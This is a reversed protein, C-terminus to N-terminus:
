EKAVEISENLKKQKSTNNAQTKMDTWRCNSPEYNGDNDVRDITCKGFPAFEDYENELAWTRFSEYSNKWEDCITIGRGGYRHFRINNPNLCRAKISKWVEYLRDEKGKCSGGHILNRQTLYESKACGCSVYRGARLNKGSASIENGCDCKCKWMRQKSGCPSVHSDLAEVVILKGFRKGIMREIYEKKAM